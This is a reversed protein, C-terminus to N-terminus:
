SKAVSREPIAQAHQYDPDDKQIDQIMAIEKWTAIIGHPIPPLDHKIARHLRELRYCPVAAYMHHEIHYNMHWYLFQVVANVTFTRCCLRFDPAEDCLGIHQTSNCLFFLWGGYMGNFTILVPVLWWGMWTSVVLILLHGSYMCWAWRRTRRRADKASEPYLTKEWEGEFRGVMYRVTARFANKFYQPTIFGSRFFDRIVFRIPLTVELDEPPHLTYRHHRQHSEAFHLHNNWGYFAFLYAFAENLWRTKFVTGHILEHVANVQFWSVTGHLFLALLTCWWPLHYFSYLALSATAVLVALFGLTQAAGLLDSRKHCAKMEERSLKTRYWNIVRPKAQRVEETYEALTQDNPKLQPSTPMTSVM